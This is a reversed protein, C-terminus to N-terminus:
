SPRELRINHRDFWDLCAGHDHHDYQWSTFGFERGTAINEPLDDLYFTEGPVLKFDDIARQYFEPEPKLAGVNHSFHHHHFHDFVRFRTLFAEAHLNNTNSFLILRHDSGKLQEVVAWMPDNASFIDQWAAVFSERTLDSPLVALSRDVFEDDSMRGTEFPDKLSGLGSPLPADPAGVVAQHFREFHLKLLVNGIDFLFTM